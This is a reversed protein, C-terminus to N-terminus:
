ENARVILKKGSKIINNITDLKDRGRPINHKVCKGRLFNRHFLNLIARQDSDPLKNIVTKM